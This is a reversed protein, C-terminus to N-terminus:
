SAGTSAAAASRGSSGVQLREVSPSATGTGSSSGDSASPPTPTSPRPTRPDNPMAFGVRNATKTVMDKTREDPDIGINYSRLLTRHLAVNKVLETYDEALHLKSEIAAPDKLESHAKCQQLVHVRWQKNHTRATIHKDVARLLSRIIQRVKEPSSAM